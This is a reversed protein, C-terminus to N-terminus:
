CCFWMCKLTFKLLCNFLYMCIILITTVVATHQISNQFQNQIVRHYTKDGVSLVNSDEM